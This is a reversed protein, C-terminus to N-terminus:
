NHVLVFHIVAARNENVFLKASMKVAENQCAFVTKATTRPMLQPNIEKGGTLFKLNSFESTANMYQFYLFFIQNENNVKLFIGINKIQKKATTLLTAPENQM